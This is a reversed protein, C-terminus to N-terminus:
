LTPIELVFYIFVSTLLKVFVFCDCECRTESGSDIVLRRIRNCIRESGIIEFDREEDGSERELDTASSSEANSAASTSALDGSEADIRLVRIPCFTYKTCSFYLINTTFINSFQTFKLYFLSNV